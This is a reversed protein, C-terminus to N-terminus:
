KYMAQNVFISTVFYTIAYAAVVVILGIISDIIIDKAKKVRDDNGRATMWMMGGYIMLILFIVGLFSLFLTIVYSITSNISDPSNFLSLSTHGTKEATTKIGSDDLFSYASAQSAAFLFVLIFISSFFYQIKKLFDFM